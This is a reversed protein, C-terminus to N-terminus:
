LVTNSNIFQIGVAKASTYTPEGLFGLTPVDSMCDELIIFKKALEPFQMAQKLTNAVCHSKAEGAFYVKQFKELKHILGANLQTEPHGEVPINARFAGFHETLPWTGKTVVQHFEGNLRCWEIVSKMIEPMIAAGPSGIICHEPWICHPFEGQKELEEVYSIAEQPYFRPSWVGDKVEKSTIITFVPPFKGNKDQWFSPHSIDIVQHSDMTLGIFDIEKKNVDIFKGLRIMDQDAGPVYLSGKPDCFDVQADIILLANKTRKMKSKKILVTYFVWLKFM